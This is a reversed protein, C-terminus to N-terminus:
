FNSNKGLFKSNRARIDRTEFERPFTELNNEMHDWLLEFIHEPDPHTPYSEDQTAQQPYYDPDDIDSDVHYDSDLPQVYFPEIQNHPTAESALQNTPNHALTPSQPTSHTTSATSEFEEEEAEELSEKADLIRSTTKSWGGRSDHHSTGCQKSKVLLLPYWFEDLIETLSKLPPVLKAELELKHTDIPEQDRHKKLHLNMNNATLRHRTVAMRCDPYPCILNHLHCFQIHDLADQRTRFQRNCFFKDADPCPFKRSIHRLKHVDMNARETTTFSCKECTHLLTLARNPDHARRWHSTFTTWSKYAFQSRECDPEECYFLVGEQRYRRQLLPSKPPGQRGLGKFPKSKSRKRKKSPSWRSEKPARPSKSLHSIKPSNRKKSARQKMIFERVRSLKRKKTSKAPQSQELIQFKQPSLPLNTSPQQNKDHQAKKHEDLAGKYRTTFSCDPCLLVLRGPAHFTHWHTIFSPMSALVAYCGPAECHFRGDKEKYQKLSVVSRCPDHQTMQHRNLDNKRVATFSCHSCQYIDSKSSHFRKWHQEFIKRTRLVSSCRPELCFVKGKAERYRPSPSNPDIKWHLAKWHKGFAVDGSIVADCDPALCHINGEAELYHVSPQPSYPFSTPAAAHSHKWHQFFDHHHAFDSCCGSQMCYLRDEREQYLAPSHTANSPLPKPSELPAIEQDGSNLLQPPDPSGRPSPPFVHVRLEHQYLSSKKKTIFDCDPCRLIHCDPDHNETWHRGIYTRSFSSTTCGSHPCYWRGLRKEFRSSDDVIMEKPVRDTRLRELVKETPSRSSCAEHPTRREVM